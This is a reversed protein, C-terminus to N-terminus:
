NLNILSPIADACERTQYKALLSFQTSSHNKILFLVISFHLM